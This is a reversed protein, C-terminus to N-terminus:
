KLYRECFIDSMICKCRQIFDNRHLTFNEGLMAIEGGIFLIFNHAIVDITHIEHGKLMIVVPVNVILNDSVYSIGNFIKARVISIGRNEMSDILYNCISCQM